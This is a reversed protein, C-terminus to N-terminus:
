QKTIEGQEAVLTFYKFAKVVNRSIGEEGESDRKAISYSAWGRGKKSWEFTKELENKGGKYITMGKPGPKGLPERCLVCSNVM